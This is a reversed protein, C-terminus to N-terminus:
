LLATKHKLDYEIAGMRAVLLMLSQDAHRRGRGVVLM